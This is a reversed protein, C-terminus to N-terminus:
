DAIVQLLVERQVIVTDGEEILAPEGTLSLARENIDDIVAGPLLDLPLLYTRLEDLTLIEKASIWCAAQLAAPPANGISIRPGNTKIHHKTSISILENIESAFLDPNSKIISITARVLSLAVTYEILPAPSTTNQQSGLLTSDFAINQPENNKNNENAIPLQKLLPSSNHNKDLWLGFYTLANRWGGYHRRYIKEGYRSLRCFRTVNVVKGEQTFVKFMEEMLESDTLHQSVRSKTVLGAVNAMDTFSGFERAVRYESIGTLEFFGSASVNEEGVNDAFKKLSGLLTERDDNSM